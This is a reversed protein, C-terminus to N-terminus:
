VPRRQSVQAIYTRIKKRVSVPLRKGSVISLGRPIAPGMRIEVAVVFAPPCVSPPYPDLILRWALLEPATGSRDAAAQFGPTDACWSSARIRRAFDPISKERPL